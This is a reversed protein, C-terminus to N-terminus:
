LILVQALAFFVQRQTFLEKDQFTFEDEENEVEEVEKDQLEKIPKEEEENYDQQLDASSLRIAPTASTVIEEIESSHDVLVRESKYQM